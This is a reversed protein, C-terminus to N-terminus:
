SYPICPFSAVYRWFRPFLRFKFIFGAASAWSVFFLHHSKPELELLRWRWCNSSRWPHLKIPSFVYLLPQSRISKQQQQLPGKGLLLLRWETGMFCSSWLKGGAVLIQHAYSCDEGQRQLWKGSAHSIHVAFRLPGLAHNGNSLLLEYNRPSHFHWSISPEAKARICTNLPLFLSSLM